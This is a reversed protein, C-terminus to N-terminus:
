HALHVYVICTCCCLWNSTLEVELSKWERFLVKKKREREHCVVNKEWKGNNKIVNRKRHIIQMMITWNAIVTHYWTKNPISTTYTSFRAMYDRIKNRCMSNSHTHTRIHRLSIWIWHFRCVCVGSLFAWIYVRVMSHIVIFIIFTILM